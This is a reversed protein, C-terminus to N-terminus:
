RKLEEVCEEYLYGRQDCRGFMGVSSLGPCLLMVDEANAAGFSFKAANRM